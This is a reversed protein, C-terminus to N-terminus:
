GEPVETNQIDGRSSHQTAVRVYKTAIRARAGIVHGGGAPEANACFHQFWVKVGFIEIM